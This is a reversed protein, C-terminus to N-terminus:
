EYANWGGSTHGYVNIRYLGEGATLEDYTVDFSTDTNANIAAGSGVLLGQGQGSGGARAEWQDCALNARFVVTCTTKGTEDSIKDLTHSQLTIVPASIVSSTFFGSLLADTPVTTTNRTLAPRSVRSSCFPYSLAGATM